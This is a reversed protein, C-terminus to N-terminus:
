HNPHPHKHPIQAEEITKPPHLDPSPEDPSIGFMELINSIFIRDGTSRNKLSTVPSHLWKAAVGRSFADIADLQDPKLDSLQEKLRELESIRMQEIREHLSKILPVLSFNELVTMFAASQDRVILEAKETEASRKGINEDVVGQLDDIDYLFLNDIEESCPEVDRPVAIDIVFIPGERRKSMAEELDKKTLIWGPSGTSTVIVDAYVLAEKLKEWPVAVGDFRHALETARKLTRNVFVLHSIGQKNLHAATITAMEGAGIVLVSCNLLPGFIQIALNVATSAISVTNESIRTQSRVLKGVEFARQFLRHLTKGVIKVSVSWNYSSKLQHLIQDEGIVMSDLGGAVRFLHHVAAHDAHRYLHPALSDSELGAKGIFGSFAQEAQEQEGKFYLEFRNCTFVPVCELLNSDVGPIVKGCLCSLKERIEIPATKHNLGTVRVSM